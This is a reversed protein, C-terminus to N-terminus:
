FRLMGLHARDVLRESGLREDNRGGWYRAFCSALKSTTIFLHTRNLRNSIFVDIFSIGTSPRTLRAVAARRLPNAKVVLAAGSGNGLSHVLQDVPDLISIGDLELWSLRDTARGSHRIRRNRALPARM